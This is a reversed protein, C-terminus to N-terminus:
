EVLAEEAAKAEAETGRFIPALQRSGGELNAYVFSGGSSQPLRSIDKNLLHNM